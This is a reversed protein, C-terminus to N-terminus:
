TEADRVLKPHDKGRRTGLQLNMATDMFCEPSLVTPTHPLCGEIVPCAQGRYLWLEDNLVAREMFLAWFYFPEPKSLVEPREANRESAQAPLRLAAAASGGGLLQADRNGM